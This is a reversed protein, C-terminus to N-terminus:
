QPFKLLHNSVEEAAEVPVWHGCDPFHVVQQAGFREAYRRSIYIDRDGLFVLAPVKATLEMLRDEWGVFNKPDTARYLRLCWRKM